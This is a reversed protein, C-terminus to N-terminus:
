HLILDKVADSGYEQAVDKPTMFRQNYINRNAGIKLLYNLVHLNGIYVAYHLPTDKLENISNNVNMETILEKIATM